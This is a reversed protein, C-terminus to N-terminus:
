EYIGGESAELQGKGWGAMWRYYDATNLEFPNEELYAGNHYAQYGMRYPSM